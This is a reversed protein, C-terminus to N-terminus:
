PMQAVDKQPLWGTQRSAGSVQLWDGDRAVVTLEAGDHVTFASQSEDMPGRRAVAEPVIVISSEEVLRQDISLGLCALLWLSVVALAVTLGGASRNFRPSTQRGM